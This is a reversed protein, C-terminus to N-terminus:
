PHTKDLVLLILYTSQAVAQKLKEGNQATLIALTGGSFPNQRIQHL